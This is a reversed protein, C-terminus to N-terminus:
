LAQGARLHQSFDAAPKVSDNGVTNQLAIINLFEDLVAPQGGKRRNLIGFARIRHGAAYQLALDPNNNVTSGKGQQCGGGEKVKKLGTLIVVLTIVDRGEQPQDAVACKEYGHQQRGQINRHSGKM